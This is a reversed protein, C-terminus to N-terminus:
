YAKAFVVRHAAPRSCCICSGATESEEFPICRISVTLEDKIRAECQAQGCWPALAFGGHIEPQRANRPTFFDHFAGQNDIQVTHQERHALARDFLNSQIQDLLSPLEAVFQARPISTKDRPRMDRRGVFVAGAPVDRPGIEVRLPIGKKIWDWGRAGGIDREDVEVQVASDHYRVASLEAALSRTYDMVEARDGPKRWIPLLVAHAAAVRPPLVLGDDDGHTMVM